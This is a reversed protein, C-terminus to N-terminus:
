AAPVPAELPDGARARAHRRAAVLGAVASGSLNAVLDRGTNQYGGVNTDPLLHTAAFEIVENLAGVGQGVFWVAVLVGVPHLGEVRLWRRTAEWWLLGASGFGCFHVVNDYHVHLPLLANYLVRDHGGEMGSLGVIGGALHGVAWLTLGVLVLGSFGDPPEVAAVLVLGLVVMVPYAIAVSSGTALGYTAFGVVLALLAVVHWRHRELSRKM